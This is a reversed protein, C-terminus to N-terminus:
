SHGGGHECGPITGFAVEETWGLERMGTESSYYAGVIWDKLNAFHEYLARPEAKGSNGAGAETQLPEKASATTLLAQRQAEQLAPFDAGFRKRSEVELTALSAAFNQQNELTDVSLLLDIFRHVQAQASGPVLAESIAALTRDQEVSLFVPQWDAAALKETETLISFDLLHKHIPHSASVLPLVAGGLLRGMM